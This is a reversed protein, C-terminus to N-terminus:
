TISLPLPHSPAGQTRKTEKDILLQLSRVSEKGGQLRTAGAPAFKETENKM